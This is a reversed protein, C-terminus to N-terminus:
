SLTKNLLIRYIEDVRSELRTVQDKVSTGSNPKLEALYHKVFFQVLAAMGGLATFSVSIIAIWSGLSM